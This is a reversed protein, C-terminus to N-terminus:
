AAKKGPQTQDILCGDALGRIAFVIGDAQSSAMLYRLIRAAISLAKPQNPDDSLSWAMKLAEERGLRYGELKQLADVKAIHWRAMKRWAGGSLYLNGHDVTKIWGVKSIEREIILDIEAPKAAVRSGIRVHGLPLSAAKGIRGASVRVLELSGGGLDVVIGDPAAINSLIGQASIRAEENGSLVRVRIGNKKNIRAVFDNGDKADRVASTAVVQLGSVKAERITEMFGSIASKARKVGKPSLKGTEDLDQALGCNVKEDVLRKQRPVAGTFIVLHVSNSGIDIVAYRKGM